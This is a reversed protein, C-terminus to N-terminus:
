NGLAAAPPRAGGRARATRTNERLADALQRMAEANELVGQANQGLARELQETSFGSQQSGTINARGEPSIFREPNAGLYTATNRFGGALALAFDGIFGSAQYNEAVENALQQEAVLRRSAADEDQLLQVQRDVAIRNAAANPGSQAVNVGAVFGARDQQLAAFAGFKDIGSLLAQAGRLNEKGFLTTLVPAQQEKPLAEIAAKVKSLAAPLSEGVLDIDTPDLGLSQQLLKSRGADASFTQLSSVVNRGQTAAESAAMQERLIANASLTDELSVGAGAFTGASQAFATLDAVQFDTQAFLGRSRVGLDLLNQGSKELGFATLFQGAGQVLSTPDASAQNSSALIKLFADLAGSQDPRAFGSSVLQTAAGFATEPTVANERATQLIAQRADRAQLNTLGAQVQYKRALEDMKLITQETEERLKAQEAAAKGFAAALTLTTPALRTFAADLLGIKNTGAEMETRAKRVSRNFTEQSIVGADLQRRLDEVRRAYAEEATEAKKTTEIGKRKLENAEAVAHKEADYAERSLKTKKQIAELQKEAKTREADYLALLGRDEATFVIKAEQTM